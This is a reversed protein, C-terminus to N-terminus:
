YGGRRGGGGGGGYGGRGGGGGGGGAVVSELDSHRLEAQAKTAPEPQRALERRISKVNKM